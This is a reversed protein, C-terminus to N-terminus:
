VEQRSFSKKTESQIFVPVLRPPKDWFDVPAAPLYGSIKRLALEKTKQPLVLASVGKRTWAAACWGSATKFLSLNLSNIETLNMSEKKPPFRDM